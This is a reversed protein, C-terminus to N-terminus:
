PKLAIFPWSVAGTKSCFAAGGQLVTVRKDKKHINDYNHDMSFDYVDYGDHDFAMKIANLSTQMM